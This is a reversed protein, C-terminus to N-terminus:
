VAVPEMAALRRPGDSDHSPILVTPREGILRRIRRSTEEAEERFWIGLGILRDARFDEVLWDQRLVHDASFFVISDGQEVIVGVQGVSHGPIPVVHVDGAETITRSEPFPGFPKSDLDYTTPEFSPPWARTRYRIRGRFTMAFEWEPRHVFAEVHPFHGIGGVHDWDLHTIVVRRVDEPQLGKALMQPGIEEEARIVPRPAFRLQYRPVRVLTSLGTDIAIKGEPHDLVYAYAPFEIDKRRYLLSGFGDGRLFTENAILRGTQIAHVEM